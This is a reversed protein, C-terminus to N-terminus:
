EYRPREKPFHSAPEREITVWYQGECLVSGLDSNRKGNADDAWAWAKHYADILRVFFASATEDSLRYFEEDNEGVGFDYWWGGEEPGGYARDLKYTNIYYADETLNERIRWLHEQMPEASYPLQLLEPPLYTDILEVLSLIQRMSLEVTTSGNVPKM